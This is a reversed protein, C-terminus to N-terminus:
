KDREFSSSITCSLLISMLLFISIPIFILFFYVKELSHSLTLNIEYIIRTMRMVKDNLTVTIHMWENIWERLLFIFEPSKPCWTSNLISFSSKTRLFKLSNTPPFSIYMYLFSSCFLSQCLCFRVTGGPFEKAMIGEEHCSGQLQHFSCPCQEKKLSRSNRTM